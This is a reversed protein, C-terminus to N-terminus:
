EVESTLNYKALIVINEKRRSLINRTFLDLYSVDLTMYIMYLYVIYTHHLCAAVCVEYNRSSGLIGLVM